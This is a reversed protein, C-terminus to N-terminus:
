KEPQLRYHGDVVTLELAIISLKSRLRSVHTELTQTEINSSYGWVGALIEARSASEKRRLLYRIIDAERDTLTVVAASDDRRLTKDIACVSYPALAGIGRVDFTMRIRELAKQLTEARMPLQLVPSETHRAGSGHALLLVREPPLYLRPNITEPLCLASLATDSLTDPLETITEARWGVQQALSDMATVVIEPVGCCYLVGTIEQYSEAKPM